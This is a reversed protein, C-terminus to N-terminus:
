PVGKRDHVSMKGLLVASEDGQLVTLVLPLYRRDNRIEPVVLRYTRWAHDSVVLRDATRGRFDLRLTVPEHGWQLRYPLEIVAADAPVFLTAGSTMQRYRVGDRDFNWRTVRYGVHDLEVANTARAIRFPLGVVLTVVAAAAMASMVRSSVGVRTAGPPSSAVVAGLVGWFALAPETMLLPHGALCTLLFACLGAAAGSLVARHDGSRLSRVVAQGTAALLWLFVTMGVLGTEALIQLFNNHANEHPYQAHVGPDRIFEGSREFFQGVGIGFLPETALLRGATRAMEARMGIAELSTRDVIRFPFVAVLLAAVTAAAGLMWVRRARGTRLATLAIATLLAAVLATRSGSIWLAGGLVAVAAAWAGRARLGATALFGWATFLALIFYSGAANVDPYPLSIRVTRALQLATAFPTESRLAGGALRTLNLVAAGCAGLAFMRLVRRNVDAPRPTAAVMFVLLGELLLAVPHVLLTSESRFPVYTHLSSVLDAALLEPSIRTALVALQVGLSAIGVCALVVAPQGGAAPRYRDGRVAQRLLWGLGAALVVTEAWDGPTGWLTSVATTALPGLALVVMLGAAPDAFAVGAILMLVGACVPNAALVSWLLLGCCLASVLSLTRILVAPCPLGPQSSFATGCDLM